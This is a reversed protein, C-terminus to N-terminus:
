LYEELLSILMSLIRRDEVHFFHLVDVCEECAKVYQGTELYRTMGLLLKVFRVDLDHLTLDRQGIFVQRCRPLIERARIMTQRLAAKAQLDELEKDGGYEHRIMCIPTRLYIEATQRDIKRQFM